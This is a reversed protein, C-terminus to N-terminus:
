SEGKKPGVYHADGEDDEHAHAELVAEATDDRGAKRLVDVVAEIEICSFSAFTNEPGVLMAEFTDALVEVAEQLIVYMGEASM